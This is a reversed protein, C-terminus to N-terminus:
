IFRILMNSFSFCISNSTNKTEMNQKQNQSHIKCQNINKTKTKLNELPWIDLSNHPQWEEQAYIHGISAYTQHNM